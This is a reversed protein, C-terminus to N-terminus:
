TSSICIDMAECKILIKNIRIEYVFIAGAVFLVTEAACDVPSLMCCAVLPERKYKFYKSSENEPTYLEPETRISPARM